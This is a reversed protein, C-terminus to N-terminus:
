PSINLDGQKFVALAKTTLRDLFEVNGSLLGGRGSAKLL